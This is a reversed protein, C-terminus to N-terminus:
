RSRRDGDRLTTTLHASEAPGCVKCLSWWEGRPEFPHEVTPVGAEPLRVGWGTV